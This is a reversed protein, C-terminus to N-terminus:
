APPTPGAAKTTMKLRSFGSDIEGTIGDGITLKLGGDPLRELAPPADDAAATGWSWAWVVRGRLAPGAQRARLFWNEEGDKLTQDWGPTGAIRHHGFSLELPADLPQLHLVARAAGKSWEIRTWAGVPATRKGQTAVELPAGPDVINKRRVAYAERDLPAGEVYDAPALASHFFWDIRPHASSSAPREVLDALVLAHGYAHVVARRHLHGPTVPQNLFWRNADERPDHLFIRKPLVGGSNFVLFADAGEAENRAHLTGVVPDAEANDLAVTNHFLSSDHGKPGIRPFPDVLVDVGAVSLTVHGHDNHGKGTGAYGFRATVCSAAADWGSRSFVAGYDAMVDLRRRPVKAETVPRYVWFSKLPEYLGLGLVMAPTVKMPTLCRRNVEGARRRIFWGLEPDGSLAYAHLFCSSLDLPVSESSGRPINREYPGPIATRYYARALDVYGPYGLYLSAQEDPETAGYLDRDPFVQSATLAYYFIGEVSMVQYGMSGEHQSGDDFFTSRYERYRRWSQELLLKAREPDRTALASALVGNNAWLGRNSYKLAEENFAYRVAYDALLDELLAKEAAALEDPAHAELMDYLHLFAIMLGGETFYNCGRTFSDFFQALNDQNATPPKIGRPIMELNAKWQPAVTRYHALLARLWDGVRHWLARDERVYALVVTAMVEDLDGDHCLMPFVPPRLGGVEAFHREAEGLFRNWLPDDVNRLVEPRQGPTTSVFPHRMQSFRSVSPVPTPGPNFANM